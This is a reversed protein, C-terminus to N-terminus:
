AVPLESGPRNGPKWKISCGMSPHQDEPVDGDGLVGDLAARLEEGTVPEDNGPTSADMRGRYVLERDGDFLFFDPTCAARYARGVEQAGDVLYPFTFGAREKQAALGEPGDDPYRDADNSCIAVADLGRGQYESVLDALQDEVHRVYPCHNCLFMVLLADGHLDDLAVTRGDLDPLAFDPARTGLPLMNSTVAM